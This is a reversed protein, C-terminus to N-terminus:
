EIPKWQQTDCGFSSGRKSRFFENLDRFSRVVQKNKAYADFAPLITQRHSLTRGAPLYLAFSGLLLLTQFAPRTLYSDQFSVLKM